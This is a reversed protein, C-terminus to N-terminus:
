LRLYTGFISKSKSSVEWINLSFALNNEPFVLINGCHVRLDCEVFKRRAHSTENLASVLAPSCFLGTYILRRLNM